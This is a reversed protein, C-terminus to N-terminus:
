ESNVRSYTPGNAGIVYTMYPTATYQKLTGLYILKLPCHKDQGLPEFKLFFM